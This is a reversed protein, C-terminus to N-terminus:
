MPWIQPVSEVLWRAILANVESPRELAVWHGADLQKETLNTCYRRQADAISSVTVDSIADWAAGIFLVPMHLYGENKSSALSYERNRQHNLYWANAGRFGTRTMSSLVEQFTDEDVCLAEKPIARLQPPPAPAGGFWGGAKTVTATAGPKGVEEAKGKMYVAKLVGEPDLEFWSTVKEYEKEFFVQYDYQGYPYDQQPFIDRNITPLVEELGLELTHYPRALGVV